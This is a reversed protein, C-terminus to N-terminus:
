VKETKENEEVQSVYTKRFAFFKGNFLPLHVFKYKVNVLALHVFKNIEMPLQNNTSRINLVESRGQYAKLKTILLEHPICDFAKSLDSM